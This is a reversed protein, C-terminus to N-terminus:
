AVTGAEHWRVTFLDAFVTLGFPYEGRCLASADAADAAAVEVSPMPWEIDIWNVGARITGAPVTVHHTMWRPGFTPRGLVSGNLTVTAPEAAPTRGTLSLQGGTAGSCTFGLRTRWSTAQHYARLPTHNPPRLVPRVAGPSISLVLDPPNPGAPTRDLLRGLEDRLTWMGLEEASRTLMTDFYRAGQATRRLTGMAPQAWNPGSGDLLDMLADGVETIAEDAKVARELQDRVFQAPQDCYAAHCAALLHSLARAEAGAGAMMGAHAGAGPHIAEALAAALRDIGDASLHCYDLFMAPDPVAPTSADALVDRLDVRSLDHTDCFSVLLQQIATTVGPTNSLLTGCAADRSRELLSRAEAQERGAWAATGALHLSAPSTGADLSIAQRAADGAASWRHEALAARGLQMAERWAELAARGLRPVSTAEAPHWGLLNVEPVAVVLRGGCDTTVRQLHTLFRRVGPQVVQTWFSERLAPWGGGALARGLTGLRAPSYAPLVWNNGAYLVVVDPRLAPLADAVSTLTRLDAGTRALDVCQYGGPSATDLMAQLAVAPPYAPDLLYGRASSEGLLVVRRASGPPPVERVAAWDDTVRAAQLAVGEDTRMLQWPGVSAVPEASPRRQPRGSRRQSVASIRQMEALIEAGRESSLLDALRGVAATLDDHRNM